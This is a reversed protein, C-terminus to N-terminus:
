PTGHCSPNQPAMGIEMKCPIGEIRVTLFKKNQKRYSNRRPALTGLKKTASKKSQSVTIKPGELQGSMRRTSTAIMLTTLWPCYLAACLQWIVRRGAAGASRQRFGTLDTTIEAVAWAAPRLYNPPGGEVRILTPKSIALKRM